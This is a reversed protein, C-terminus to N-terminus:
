LMYMQAIVKVLTVVFALLIIVAMTIYVRLDEQSPGSKEKKKNANGPRRRPPKNHEEGKGGGGGDQGTGGEGVEIDADRLAKEAIADALSLISRADDADVANPFRAM